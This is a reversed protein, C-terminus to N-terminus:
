WRELSLLAPRCLLRCGDGCGWEVCQVCPFLSATPVATLVKVSALIEAAKEKDSGFTFDALITHKM